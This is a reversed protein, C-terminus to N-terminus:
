NRDIAEEAPTQGLSKILELVSRRVSKSPISLYSTGLSTGEHTAMFGLINAKDGSPPTNLAQGGHGNPTQAAAPLDEFFFQVPVNFIESIRYLRSASIRNTGKEYKQIQQFTLGLMDGLKEQSMGALVRRLKVRSGIHVDVPHPQKEQAM